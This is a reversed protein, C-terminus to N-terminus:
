GGTVHAINKSCVAREVKRLVEATAYFFAGDRGAAIIKLAHDRELSAGRIMAGWVCQKLTEDADSGRPVKARGGMMRLLRRYVVRDM